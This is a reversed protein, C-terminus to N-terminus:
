ASAVHVFVYCSGPLILCALSALNKTLMGIPIEVTRSLAFTLSLGLMNKPDRFM